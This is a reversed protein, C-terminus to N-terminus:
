LDGDGMGGPGDQAAPGQLRTKKRKMAKALGKKWVEECAEYSLESFGQDAQRRCVNHLDFLAHWSALALAKHESRLTPDLPGDAGQTAHAHGTRRLRFCELLCLTSYPIIGRCEAIRLAWPCRFLHEMEDVPSTFGSRGLDVSGRAM